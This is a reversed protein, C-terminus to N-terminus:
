HRPSFIGGLPIRVGAREVTQSHDIETGGEHSGVARREQGLPTSVDDLDFWGRSVHHAEHAIDAVGRHARNEDIGVAALATDRQVDLRLGSALDDMPQGAPGVNEDVIHATLHLVPQPDAGRLQERNIRSQHVAAEASEAGSARILVPGGVVVDDLACGSGSMHLAEATRGFVHPLSESVLLEAMRAASRARSAEPTPRAISTGINSVIVANV